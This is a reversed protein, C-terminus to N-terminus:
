FPLNTNAGNGVPFSDEVPMSEVSMTGANFDANFGGMEGGFVASNGDRDSFRAFEKEFKMKITALGGNRHKSVIFEAIGELSSGDEPDELIGFYEPRHVFAVIDADQEIAGSERLDSLQPRKDKGARSELNRNLQSLAIIPINLEKAIGKLSRSINAVEQERNGRTDGSWTMLQLYDIIAVKIGYNKVLRRCKGRFEVISLAPTDDIYVPAERLMPLMATFAAWEQEELKGNRIKEGSISTHLSILRKVLQESSMELSFFAVGQQHVQAMQLAMSLVFATKGMSPRGAVIILDTPQWGATLRDLDVFGSRVGTVDGDKQGAERINHEVEILLNGIHQVDRKVTEQSLEFFKQEASNLVEDVDSAEDYAQQIVEGSIRILARQVYKQYILTAHYPAHVGSMVSNTLSALYYAGGIEELRGQRRLELAVTSIDVPEDNHMLNCIAEYILGNKEKYFHEPKLIETVAFLTERELMIAGLVKEELEVEQPPLKGEEVGLVRTADTLASSEKKIRKAM